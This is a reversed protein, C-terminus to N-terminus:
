QICKEKRVIIDKVKTANVSSINMFLVFLVFYSFFVWVIRVGVRFISLVIQLFMRDNIVIKKKFTIELVIGKERLCKYAHILDAFM